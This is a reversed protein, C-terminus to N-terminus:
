LKVFRKAGATNGIQIFYVASKLDIINIKKRDAVIGQQVKKGLLNYITYTEENDLGSIEIFDSSPNPFLTLDKSNQTVENVSLPVNEGVTLRDFFIFYTNATLKVEDVSDWNFTFTGVSDTLNYSQSEVQVGNRFGYFTMIASVASGQLDIIYELSTFKFESGDSTYFRTGTTNVDTTLVVNYPYIGTEAQYGNFRWGDYTIDDLVTGNPIIQLDAYVADWVQYDSTQDGTIPLAYYDDYSTASTYSSHVFYVISVLTLFTIKKTM